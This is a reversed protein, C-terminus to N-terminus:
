PVSRHDRVYLNVSRDIVWDVRVTPSADHVPDVL